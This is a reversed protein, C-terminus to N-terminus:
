GHRYFKWLIQVRGQLGLRVRMGNGGGAVHALHEFAFERGGEFRVRWTNRELHAPAHEGFESGSWGGLFDVGVTGIHMTSGM